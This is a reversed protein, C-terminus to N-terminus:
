YSKFIPYIAKKIVGEDSLLANLKKTALVKNITSKKGNVFVKRNILRIGLSYDAWTNQHKNYLPQIPTGNLKHWGYIVVKPMKESYIKNSIIVDKKHGATLQSQNHETLYPKLQTKILNSHVIFVPVTVMAKTPTIPLPQLKISANKYILNVMKKTPLNCKLFNAVRQALIPTMPVYFFDENNGISFYDPM